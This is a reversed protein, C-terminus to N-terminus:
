ACLKPSSMLQVLVAASHEFSGNVVPHLPLMEHYVSPDGEHARKAATLLSPMWDVAHFLAHNENPTELMASFAGDSLYSCLKPTTPPRM